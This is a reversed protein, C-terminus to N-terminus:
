NVMVFYNEQEGGPMRRYLIKVTCINNLTIHNIIILLQYDKKLQCVSTKKRYMDELLYLM